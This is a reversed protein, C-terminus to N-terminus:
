GGRRWGGTARHEHVGREALRCGPQEPAARRQLGRPVVALPTRIAPPALARRLLGALSPFSRM